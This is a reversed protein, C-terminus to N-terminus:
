LCVEKETYPLYKKRSPIKCSREVREWEEKYGWPNPFCLNWLLPSSAIKGCFIKHVPFVPAFCEINNMNTDKKGVSVLKTVISWARESSWRAFLTGIM